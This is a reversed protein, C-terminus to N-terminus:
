AFRQVFGLATQAVPTDGPSNAAKIERNERESISAMGFEGRTPHFEVRNASSM